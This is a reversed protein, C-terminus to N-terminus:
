SVCLYKIAQEPRLEVIKVKVHDFLVFDLIYQLGNDLGKRLSNSLRAQVDRRWLSLGTNERAVGWPYTSGLFWDRILSSLLAKLLCLSFGCPTRHGDKYRIWEGLPILEPPTQRFGPLEYGQMHKGWIHLLLDALPCLGVAGLLQAERTEPLSPALSVQHFM